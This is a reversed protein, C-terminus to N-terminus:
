RTRQVESEVARLDAVRGPKVWKQHRFEIKSFYLEFLEQNTPWSFKYEEPFVAEPRNIIRILHDIDSSLLSDLVRPAREEVEAVFVRWPVVDINMQEAWLSTRYAEVNRPLMRNLPRDALSNATISEVLVDVPVYNMGPGDWIAGLTKALEFVRWM